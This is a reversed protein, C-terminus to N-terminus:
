MFEDIGTQVEDIDNLYENVSKKRLKEEIEVIRSVNNATFRYENDSDPVRRCADIETLFELCQRVKGISMERGYFSRVNSPTLVFEGTQLNNLVIDNCISYSLSEPEINETLYITKDTAPPLSIGSELLQSLTGDNIDGGELTLKEDREQTLVATRSEMDELADACNDWDERCKEIFDDFYVICHEFAEVSSKSHETLDVNDLFNEIDELDLENYESMQDLDSQNINYGSKVEAFLLLEGDYLTFDPEPTVDAKAEDVQLFTGVLGYGHDYL